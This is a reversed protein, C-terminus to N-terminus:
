SVSLDALHDSFHLYLTHLNLEISAREVLYVAVWPLYIDGVSESLQEVMSSMNCSSLNNFTFFLDKLGDPPAM